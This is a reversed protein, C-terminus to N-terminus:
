KKAKQSEVLKLDHKAAEYDPAIELALHIYTEAAEFDGRLISVSGLGNLASPDNADTKIVSRFVREANGLEEDFSGTRKCYRILMAKDKHLYGQLDLLMLDDPSEALPQKLLAEEQEFLRTAEACDGNELAFLGQYELQCLQALLVERRETDRVIEDPSPDQWEIWNKSGVYARTLQVDDLGQRYIDPDDWRPGGLLVGAYMLKAKRVPTGGAICAEYFMRHVQRWPKKHFQAPCRKANFDQCYADHIIAAGLFENQFRDDTIPLLLRPVSAGDTWTGKVATWEIGNSDVFTLKRTELEKLNSHLLIKLKIEASAFHGRSPGDRRWDLMVAIGSMLRAWLHRIAAIGSM